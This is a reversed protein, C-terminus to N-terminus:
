NEYIIKNVVLYINGIPRKWLVEDGVKNGILAIALPSIYSIKNKSSDAEDEGVIQFTYKNDYEDILYVKASFLIKDKNQSNPHVTIASKIRALFYRLDRELRYKKEILSSSDDNKLIKLDNEINTLQEKLQNLGFPTVYNTFHSLPREPIDIGAHELDNEKVFDRSM